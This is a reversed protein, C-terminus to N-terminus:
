VKLTYAKRKARGKALLHPLCKASRTWTLMNPLSAKAEGSVASALAESGLDVANCRKDVALLSM